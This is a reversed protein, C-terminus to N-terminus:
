SAIKRSGYLEHLVPEGQDNNVHDGGGADEGKVNGFDGNEGNGAAENEGLGGDSSGDVGGSLHAAQPEPAKDGGTEFDDAAKFFNSQISATDSFWANSAGAVLAAALAITTIAMLSLILKKNM